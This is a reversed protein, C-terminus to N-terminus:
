DSETCFLCSCPLLTKIFGNDSLVEKSELLLFTHPSLLHRSSNQMAIGAPSTRWMRMCDRLDHRSFESLLWLEEADFIIGRVDWVAYAARNRFMFILRFRSSLGAALIIRLVANFSPHHCCAILPIFLPLYRTNRSSSRNSYIWGCFWWWTRNHISHCTSFIKHASSEVHIIVREM